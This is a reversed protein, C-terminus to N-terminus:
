LTPHNRRSETTKEQSARSSGWGSLLGTGNGQSTKNETCGQSDPADQNRPAQIEFPLRAADARTAALETALAIVVVATRRM